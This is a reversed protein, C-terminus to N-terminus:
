RARAASARAATTTSRSRSAARARRAARQARRVDRPVVDRPQRRRRRIDEFAGPTTPGAQRWVRLKLDMSAAEPVDDSTAGSRSTSTSSSSSSRTSRRARHRRRHVGVRAVYRSTARRRAAGRRGRDPARRPLPRRLEGRPAARRPVAARRVRPLRRRPRGERAVPQADRREGLVRVDAYFEERLAPIETLAKELSESAAPWAATTGCSRASSATSTTSRTAHRQGVAAPQTRDAVSAEAESSRRTTPRAGADAGLLPALYDCITAPLVFYGDALGQM